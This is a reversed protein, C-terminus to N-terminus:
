SAGSGSTARRAGAARRGGRGGLAGAPLPRRLARHQEPVGARDGRRRPLHQVVLGLTSRGFLSVVLHGLREGLGCKVVARAVLFAVVILLITGNRSARTRASPRSPARSCRRPSRSSPRPSSRSRASWSRSSRRRSSRSCTGRRRRSAAPVPAFWVGLALAVVVARKLRTRRREDGAIAPGAPPTEVAQSPVASM